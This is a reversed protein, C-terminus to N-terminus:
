RDRKMREVIEGIGVVTLVGFTWGAILGGVFLTMLLKGLAHVPLVDGV